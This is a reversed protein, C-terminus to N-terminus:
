DQVDFDMQGIKSSKAHKQWVTWFGNAQNKGSKGSKQLIKALNKGTCTSPSPDQADQLNGPHQSDRPDQLDHLFGIRFTFFDM